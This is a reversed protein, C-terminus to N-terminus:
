AMTKALVLGPSMGWGISLATSQCLASHWGRPATGWRAARPLPPSHIVAHARVGGEFLYKKEGRLPYNSGGGMASVQGGNDSAVVIVATDYLGTAKLGRNTLNALSEDANMMLAAFNKRDHNPINLLTANRRELLETRGPKEFSKLRRM